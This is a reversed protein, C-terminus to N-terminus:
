YICKKLYPPAEPLEADHNISQFITCYGDSIILYTTGWGEAMVYLSEPKIKSQGLRLLHHGSSKQYYCEMYLTEQRPFEDRLYNLSVPKRHDTITDLHLYIDEANLSAPDIARDFDPLSQGTAYIAICLMAM